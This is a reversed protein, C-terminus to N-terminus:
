LWLNYLFYHCVIVALKRMSELSTESRYWGWNSVTISTKVPDKWHSPRVTQSDMLLCDVQYRHPSLHISGWLCICGKAVFVCARSSIYLDTKASQVTYCEQLPIVVHLIDQIHNIFFYLGAGKYLCPRARTSVQECFIAYHLGFFSAFHSILTSFTWSLNIEGYDGLRQAGVGRKLRWNCLSSIGGKKSRLFICARCWFEIQNPLSVTSACKGM